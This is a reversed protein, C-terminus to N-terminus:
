RSAPPKKFTPKLRRTAARLRQIEENAARVKEDLQTTKSSKQADNSRLKELVKGVSLKNIEAMAFEEATEGTDIKAVDV